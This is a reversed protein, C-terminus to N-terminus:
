IVVTVSYNSEINISCNWPETSLVKKNQLMVPIYCLIHFIARKDIWKVLMAVTWPLEAVLLAQRPQEMLRTRPAPRVRILAWLIPNRRSRCCLGDVLERTNTGQCIVKAHLEIWIYIKSLIIICFFILM